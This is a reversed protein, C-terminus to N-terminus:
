WRRLRLAYRESAFGDPTRRLPGAAWLYFRGCPSAEEVHFAGGDETPVWHWRGRCCQGRWSAQWEGDPFLACHGEDHWNGPWDLSASWYGWVEHAEVPCAPPAPRPLPAPAAPACALLLATLV